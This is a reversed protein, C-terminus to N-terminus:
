PKIREMVAIGDGLDAALRLAPSRLLPALLAPDPLDVLLWREEGTPRLLVPALVCAATHFRWVDEGVGNSLDANTLYGASSAHLGRLTERARGYRVEAGPERRSVAQVIGPIMCAASIAVAIAAARNV